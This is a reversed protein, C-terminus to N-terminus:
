GHHSARDDFRALVNRKLGDVHAAIGGASTADHVLLGLEINRSHARPNLNASTVLAVKGDAVIAKAHLTAGDTPRQNAPWYWVVVGDLRAFMAAHDWDLVGGRQKATELVLDIKVGKAAATELAESVQPSAYATYSLILLREKASAIVQAVVGATLRVQEGVDPGTWVPRISRARDRDCATGAAEVALALGPSSVAVEEEWARFLRGMMTVFNPSAAIALTRQQTRPSPGDGQRLVSILRARQREPLTDALELVIDALSTV